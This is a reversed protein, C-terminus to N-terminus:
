KCSKSFTHFFVMNDLHTLQEITKKAEKSKMKKAETKLYDILIHTFLGYQRRLFFAIAQVDMYPLDGVDRIVVENDYGDGYKHGVPVLFCSVLKTLDKDEEQSYNHYDIYQATIISPIDAQLYYERGNVKYRDKHDIVKDPINDLFSLKASMSTFQSLPLNELEDVSMGSLLSVLNVTKYSQPIDASAIQIIQNFENFTIENWSTKM